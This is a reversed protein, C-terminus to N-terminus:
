GHCTGASASPSPAPESRWPHYTLFVADDSANEFVLCVTTSISVEVQEDTMADFEDVIKNEISFGRSKM